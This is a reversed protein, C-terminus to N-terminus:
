VKVEVCRQFVFKNNDNKNFVKRSRTFGLELAQSITESYSYNIQLKKLFQNLVDKQTWSQFDSVLDYNTNNLQFSIYNSYNKKYLSSSLMEYSIKHIEIKKNHETYPHELKNICKKLLSRNKFKTKIATYHSM